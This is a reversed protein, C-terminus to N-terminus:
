VQYINNEKNQKTPFLLKYLLIPVLFFAGYQSIKFFLSTLWYLCPIIRGLPHPRFAIPQRLGNPPIWFVDLYAKGMLNEFKIEISHLGKKLHIFNMKEEPSHLGGNDLIEEGDVWIWSGDDSDIGIWYTGPKEVRLLGTLQLQFREHDFRSDSKRSLPFSIDSITKRDFSGKDLLTLLGTKTSSSHSLYRYSMWNLGSITMSFTESLLWFVIPVAIILYARNKKNGLLSIKM